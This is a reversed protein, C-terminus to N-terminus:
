IKIIKFTQIEGNTSEIIVFYAGKPYTSVDIQSSFLEQRIEITEGNCNLILAKKVKVNDPIDIFLKDTVPNPYIKINTMYTNDGIGTLGKAIYSTKLNTAVYPPGEVSNEDGDFWGIFGSTNSHDPLTFHDFLNEYFANEGISVLLSNEEFLIDSLGNNDFAFDGITTISVPFIMQVFENNSCAYKKINKLNSPFNIQTLSNNSFAYNDFVTVNDPIFNVATTTGCYSVITTIDETGDNNRAFIIGNTSVGNISTVANDNFAGGGIHTVSNPITLSTINNSMFAREGIDTVNDPISVSSIQNNMFAQEGISTLNGQNFVVDTINNGYFASAGITDVSGPINLGIIHNEFFAEKGITKLNNGTFTLNTISNDSFAEYGITIVSSPITITTLQNGGFARDAISTLNGEEFTASILLNNGFAGFGILTVSSPINISAIENNTFANNGIFTLGESFTINAIQNQSFAGYKISDISNPLIVSTIGILGFAWNDIVTVNDSIFDVNKLTGGYSIITTSDNTGDSNRAYIIGTSNHGNIFNIANSNFAAEGIRTVSAPIVLETINNFSFAWAGIDKFTNPLTLEGINCGSFLGGISWGGNIIGNVTQGQLTNPITLNTGNTNASFNYYCQKIYGNEIFVDNDQLTYNVQAFVSTTSIILGILLTYLKILNKEM